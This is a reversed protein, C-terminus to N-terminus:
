RYGGRTRHEPPTAVVFCEDHYYVWDNSDTSLIARFQQNKDCFPYARHIPKGCYNCVNSYDDDDHEHNEIIERWNVSDLAAQLLDVFLTAGEIPAMNRVYHKLREARHSLGANTEALMRLTSETDSENTLWLNVCWTEYNTWGSYTQNAM